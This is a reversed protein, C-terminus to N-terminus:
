LAGQYNNQGMKILNINVPCFYRAFVPRVKNLLGLASQEFPWAMYFLVITGIM